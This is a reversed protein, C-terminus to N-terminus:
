CNSDGTACTHPDANANFFQYDVLKEVLQGDGPIIYICLCDHNIFRALRSGAFWTVVNLLRLFANQLM